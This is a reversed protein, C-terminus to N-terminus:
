FPLEEPNETFTEEPFPSGDFADKEANKKSATDLVNLDLTKLKALIPPALPENPLPMVMYVTDLKEGKRAIAIKLQTIDGYTSNLMELQDYITRGFELIKAKFGHGDQIAVNVRYRVKAGLSGPSVIISKGNEWRIFYEYIEGLCVCKVTEGDKIKLFKDSKEGQPAPKNFKM